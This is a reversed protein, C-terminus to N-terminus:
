QVQDVPPVVRERLQRAPNGAVVAYAQVPKTVVSGAGIIAHPGIDAMIIAGHGIWVDEGISVARYSSGQYQMPIDVRASGHAHKGSLVTVNNGFMTDRGITCHSLHCFGGIYVHEGISVKSTAFTTCFGVSVDRGVGDLTLRLFAGRLFQGPVGPLPALAQTLGQFSQDLRRPSIAAVLRHLLWLPSVLLIAVGELLGKLVQRM